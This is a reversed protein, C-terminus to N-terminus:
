KTIPNEMPNTETRTRAEQRSTHGGENNCNYDCTNEIAETETEMKTTFRLEEGCGDESNTAM